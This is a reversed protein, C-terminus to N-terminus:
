LLEPNNASATDDSLTASHQTRATGYLVDHGSEEQEALGEDGGVEHLSVMASWCHDWKMIALTKDDMLTANHHTLTAFLILTALDKKIEKPCRWNAQRLSRLDEGPSSQLLPCQQCLHQQHSCHPHLLSAQLDSQMAGTWASRYCCFSLWACWAVHEGFDWMPTCGNVNWNSNDRKRQMPPSGKAALLEAAPRSAWKHMCKSCSKVHIQPAHRAHQDQVLKGSTTAFRGSWVAEGGWMKNSWTWLWCCCSCVLGWLWLARCTRKCALM